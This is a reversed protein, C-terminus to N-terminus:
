QIVEKLRKAANNVNFNTKYVLYANLAMKEKDDNNLTLWKKLNLITGELNNDNIIGAGGKEIERYINIKNTILVPKSCALAEAVAIGFNEQHSPLIFADCGYIAGWKADGSLHGVFQVKAKVIPNEELYNLMKTGYETEIGPGAIVLNPLKSSFDINNLLEYYAILLLDLGKKPHIRSLFLLYPDKNELNYREKFSIKLAESYSPPAEIGYGINIEKKPNYGIFTTKALFLEEECTFLLGDANNIVKKEILHWYFYNRIAKLRRSKDKQFWPDLMGHPMIYVKPLKINSHKKKLNIVAKKVAYSHYTWLGNIILVDFNCAEKKLFPILKENYQWSTKPKGLAHIKLTDPFEWLAIDNTEEFTVIHREVGLTVLENQYNRIGQIPGGNKPNVGSIIHLIKL